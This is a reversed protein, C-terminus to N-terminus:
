AQIQLAEVDITVDAMDSVVIGGKDLKDNWSVGFDHRNVSTSASFEAPRHTRQRRRRGLVTHGV